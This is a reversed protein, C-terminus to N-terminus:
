NPSYRDLTELVDKAANEPRLAEPSSKNADLWRQWEELRTAKGIQWGKLTPMSQSSDALKTLNVNRLREVAVPDRLINEGSKPDRIYDNLPAFLSAMAFNQDDPVPPPIFSSADLKEGQGELENKCRQWARQGRWAEEVDLAVVAALLVIIGVSLGTALRRLVRRRAIPDSM